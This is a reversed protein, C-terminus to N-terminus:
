IDNKKRELGFPVTQQGAIWISLDRYRLVFIDHGVDLRLVEGYGGMKSDGTLQM